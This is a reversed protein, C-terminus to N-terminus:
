IITPKEVRRLGWLSYKALSKIRRQWADYLRIQFANGEPKPM